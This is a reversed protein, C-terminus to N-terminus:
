AAEEFTVDYDFLGAEVAYDQQPEIDFVDPKPNDKAYQRAAERWNKDQLIITMCDAKFAERVNSLLIQSQVQIKVVKTM